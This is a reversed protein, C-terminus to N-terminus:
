GLWSLLAANVKLLSSTHPWPSHCLTSTKAAVNWDYRNFSEAHCILEFSTLCNPKLRDSGANANLPTAHHHAGHVTAFAQTDFHLCLVSYTEPRMQRRYLRYGLSCLKVAHRVTRPLSRWRLQAGGSTTTGAGRVALALTV